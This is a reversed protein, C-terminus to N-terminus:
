MASGDASACSVSSAFLSQAVVSFWSCFGAALICHISHVMMGFLPAMDAVLGHAKTMNQAMTQMYNSTIYMACILMRQLKIKCCNHKGFM